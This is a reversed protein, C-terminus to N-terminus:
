GEYSMRFGVCGMLYGGGISPLLVIEGKRIRDPTTKVELVRGEADLVREMNGHRIAFDLAVLNSAASMNGYRYITRIVREPPMELKDALGDVIRGNAQHPVLRAGDLIARLEANKAKLDSMEYGLTRVTCEAMNTIANRLVSPGGGMEIYTRDLPAYPATGVAPGDFCRRNKGDTPRGIRIASESYEFGMHPPLMGTGEPADEVRSVVAAGAGDAFLLATLPDNFNLQPSITEAGVVLVHKMAGSAVMGYALGLGYISGACAGMLQFTPTRAAGLEHALICHDGPIMHSMTFSAYVIMGLDTPAVGARELAAKSAVLALDSTPRPVSTFPREHIHTVQDVWPAFPGSRTPDYGTVIKALDENSVVRDGVCSGTGTLQVHRNLTARV